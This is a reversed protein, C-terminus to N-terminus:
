VLPIPEIRSEATRVRVVAAGNTTRAKALGMRLQQLIM